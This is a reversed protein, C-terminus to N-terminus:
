PLVPVREVGTEVGVADASDLDGVAEVGHIASEAGDVSFHLEFPELDPGVLDVRGMDADAIRHVQRLSKVARWTEVAGSNVGKGLCPM